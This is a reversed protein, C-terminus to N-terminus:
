KKAMKKSTKSKTKKKMMKPMKKPMSSNKPLNPLMTLPRYMAGPSAVSGVPSASAQALYSSCPCSSM